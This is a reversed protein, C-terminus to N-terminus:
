LSFYITKILHWAHRVFECCCQRSFLWAAYHLHCSSINLMKNGTEHLVYAQLDEFLNVAPGDISQVAWYEGKFTCEVWFWDKSEKLQGLLINQSKDRVLQM